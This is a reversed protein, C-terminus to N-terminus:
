SVTNLWHVTSKWKNEAWNGFSAAWKKANILKFVLSRLCDVLCCIVFIVFAATLIHLIMLPTSESAFPEFKRVIFNSRFHQNEHILYVGFTLSAIKQIVTRTNHSKITIESFLSVLCVACIYVLPSTYSYFLGSNYGLKNLLSIHLINRSLLLASVSVLYVSGAHNKM